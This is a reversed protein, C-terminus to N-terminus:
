LLTTPPFTSCSEKPLIRLPSLFALISSRIHEQQEFYGAMYVVFFHAATVADSIGNRVYICLVCFFHFSKPEVCKGKGEKGKEGWSVFELAGIGSM